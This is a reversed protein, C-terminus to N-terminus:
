AEGAVARAQLTKGTGRPGVLLVGRPIRAGLAAFKAPEKLFGVVEQLEQLPEDVGAVDLFTIGSQAGDAVRARAQGFSQMAGGGRNSFRRFACVVFAGFLVLPVLGAVASLWVAPRDAVLYR